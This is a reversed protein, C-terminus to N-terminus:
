KNFVQKNLVHKHFRGTPSLNYAKLVQEVLCLFPRISLLSPNAQGLSEASHCNLTQDSWASAQYLIKCVPSKMTETM